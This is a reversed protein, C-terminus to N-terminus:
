AVWYHCVCVDPSTVCFLVNPQTCDPLGIIVYVYMLRPLAFCSMLSRVTLCGLLSMCMLGTPGLALCSMLSRVVWYHRVFLACLVHRSMLSRVILCGLSSMCMLGTPGLALCSMLYLGIIVYLYPVYCM